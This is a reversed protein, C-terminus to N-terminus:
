QKVAEIPTNQKRTQKCKQITVRLRNRRAAHQELLRHLLYAPMEAPQSPASFDRPRCASKGFDLSEEHKEETTSLAFPRNPSVLPFDVLLPSAPSSKARYFHSCTGHPLLSPGHSWSKDLLGSLSFAAAPQALFNDYDCTM